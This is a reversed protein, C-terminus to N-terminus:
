INSGIEAFGKEEITKLVKQIASKMNRTKLIFGSALKHGGGGLATSYITTDLDLSRFSGKIDGNMQVLVFILNLSKINQMCSIGLRIDSENLKQKEYEKKTVWSYAVTRGNIEKKVMNTLLFGHFKKLKWPNSMIPEYLDKKYNLGGEELLVIAKKLSDLSNGHIFFATDTCIGVLLRLSLEKDFKM